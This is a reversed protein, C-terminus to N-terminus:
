SPLLPTARRLLLRGGFRMLSTGALYCLVTAVLAMPIIWYGLMETTGTPILKIVGFVFASKGWWLGVQQPLIPKMVAVLAFSLAFGYAALAGLGIAFAFLNRTARELIALMLTGPASRALADELKYQDLFGQALEAPDGLGDLVEQVSAGTASLRDAIHSRIEAIITARDEPPLIRLGRELRHLYQGTADSNVTSM